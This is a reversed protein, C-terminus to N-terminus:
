RFFTPKFYRMCGNPPRAKGIDASIDTLTGQFAIADKTDVNGTKKRYHALLQLNKDPNRMLLQQMAYNDIGSESAIAM